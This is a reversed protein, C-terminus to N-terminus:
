GRQEPLRDPQHFMVLYRRHPATGRAAQHYLNGIGARQGHGHDDVQLVDARRHRVNDVGPQQELRQGGPKGGLPGPLVADGLQARRQLLLGGELGIAQPILEVGRYAPEAAVGGQPQEDIHQDLQGAM